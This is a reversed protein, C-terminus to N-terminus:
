DFFLNDVEDVTRQRFAHRGFSRAGHQAYFVVLTNRDDAIRSRRFISFGHEVEGSAARFAQEALDSKGNLGHKPMNTYLGDQRGAIHTAAIRLVSAAILSFGFFHAGVVAHSEVTHCVGEVVEVNLGDDDTAAGAVVLEFFVAEFFDEGAAADDVDM